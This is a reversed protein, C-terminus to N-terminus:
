RHFTGHCPSSRGMWGPNDQSVAQEVPGVMAGTELWQATVLEVSLGERCQLVEPELEGDWAVQSPHRLMRRLDRRAGNSDVIM